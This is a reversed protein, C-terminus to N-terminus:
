GEMFKEVKFLKAFMSMETSCKHFCIRMMSKSIRICRLNRIFTLFAIDINIGHTPKNRKRRNDPVVRLSSNSKSHHVRIQDSFRNGRIPASCIHGDIINQPLDFVSVVTWVTSVLRVVDEKPRLRSMSIKTCILPRSHWIIEAMTDKNVLGLNRIPMLHGSTGGISTQFAHSTINM